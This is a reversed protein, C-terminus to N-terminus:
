IMLISDFIAFVDATPFFAALCWLLSSALSVVVVVVVVDVVVVDVVILIFTLRKSITITYM